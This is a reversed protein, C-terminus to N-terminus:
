SAWGLVALFGGAFLLKHHTEEDLDDNRIVIGAAVLGYSLATIYWM